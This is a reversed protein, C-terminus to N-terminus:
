EVSSVVLGSTKKGLMPNLAEPRQNEAVRM